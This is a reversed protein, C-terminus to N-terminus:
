KIEIVKIYVSNPFRQIAMGTCIGILKIRTGKTLQSARENNKGPVIICYIGIEKNGSELELLNDGDNFQYYASVKGTLEIEKNLFKKDSSVKNLKYEIVLEAASIRTTVFETYIYFFALLLLVIMVSNSVRLKHKRM